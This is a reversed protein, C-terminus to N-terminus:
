GMLGHIMERVKNVIDPTYADRQQLLGLWLNDLPFILLKENSKRVVALHNFHSAGVEAKVINGNVGSMVVFASLAEVNAVNHSLVHGDQSVVIYGELGQIRQIGNVLEEKMAM